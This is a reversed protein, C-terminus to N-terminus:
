KKNFNLYVNKIEEHIENITKITNDENYCKIIKWNQEEAIKLGINYCNILYEYNNEHIDRKTGAKLDGRAERLKKSLEPKLDLFFTLDPVPLQLDEYEFKKLWSITENREKENRIKTAQHLFNSTVYRDLLLIGNSKLFNKYSLMTCLRDLAFLSSCQKANLANIDGFDGNLYHKVLVSSDSEYNPFSQKKVNEGNEKLFNFLLETQTQKGSGDTGEIVIIM